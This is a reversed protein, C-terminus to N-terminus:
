NNKSKSIVENILYTLMEILTLSVFDVEGNHLKYKSLGDDIYRHVMVNEMSTNKHKILNFKIYDDGTHKIYLVGRERCMADFLEWAQSEALTDSPTEKEFPYKKVLAWDDVIYSVLCDFQTLPLTDEDHPAEKSIGIAYYSNEGDSMEQEIFAHYGKEVFPAFADIIEPPTAVEINTVNVGSKEVFRDLIFKDPKSELIENLIARQIKEVLAPRYRYCPKTRRYDCPKCIEELITKKRNEPILHSLDM